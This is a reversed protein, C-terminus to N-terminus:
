VARVLERQACVARPSRSGASGSRRDPMRFRCPSHHVVANRGMLEPPTKSVLRASRGSHAVFHVARVEAAAAEQRRRRVRDDLRDMLLGHRGQQGLAVFDLSPKGRRPVHCLNQLPGQGFVPHSGDPQPDGRSCPNNRTMAPSGPLMEVPSELTAAFGVAVPDIVTPFVIPITM